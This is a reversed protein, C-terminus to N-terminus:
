SRIYTNRPELAAFIGGLARSALLMSPDIQLKETKECPLMRYKRLLCFITTMITFKAYRKGICNRPGEGFPLYVCPTINAKNEPSFRDPNFAEPNSFYKPDYNLGHTSFFVFVNKDIVLNTGPFRYKLVTCKREIVHNGANMRLIEDFVMDFYKMESISDWSVIGKYKKDIETVEEYCKEQIDQHLSFTYLILSTNYAVTEYTALSYTLLQQCIVNDDIKTKRSDNDTENKLEKMFDLVTNGNNQEGYICSLVFKDFINTFRLYYQLIVPTAVSIIQPCTIALTHWISPKTPLNLIEDFIIKLQEDELEVGFLTNNVLEFSYKSFLGRLELVNSYILKSDIRRIVRDIALHILPTMKELKAKTFAPSNIQRMGRWDENGDM